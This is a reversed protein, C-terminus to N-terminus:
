GKKKWGLERIKGDSDLCGQDLWERAKMKGSLFDTARTNYHTKFTQAIPNYALPVDHNLGEPILKWNKDKLDSERFTPDSASKLGAVGYGARGLHVQAKPQMLWKMFDWSADPQTTSRPISFTRV